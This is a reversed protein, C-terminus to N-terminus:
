ARIRSSRGGTVLRELGVPSLVHQLALVTAGVAGAGEGAASTEILLSRTALPLARQYVGSRIGALLDENLEALPGGLVIATPNYFNVLSALVDGV